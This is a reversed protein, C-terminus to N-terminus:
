SYTELIELIENRLSNPEYPKEKVYDIPTIGKKNPLLPDSGRELLYKIKDLYSDYRQPYEQHTDKMYDCRLFCHLLTCGKDDQININGGMNDSLFFDFLDKWEQFLQSSRWLYNHM